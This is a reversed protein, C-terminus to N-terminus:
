ASWKSIGGFAQVRSRAPHNFRARVLMSVLWDGHRLFYEVQVSISDGPKGSEGLSAVRVAELPLSAGGECVDGGAFPM